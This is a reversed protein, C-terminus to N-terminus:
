INHAGNLLQNIYKNKENHLVRVVVDIKGDKKM